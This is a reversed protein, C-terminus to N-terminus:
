RCHGRYGPESVGDLWWCKDDLVGRQIKPARAFPHGSAGLYVGVLALFVDSYLTPLGLGGIICVFLIGLFLDNRKRLSMQLLLMVLLLRSALSVLGGSHLAILYESDGIFEGLPSTYGVGLVLNARIVDYTLQTDAPVYDYAYRSRLTELPRAVVRGFYYRFPLGTASELVSSNAVVLALCIIICVPLSVARAGILRFRLSTVFLRLVYVLLSITAGLVFTKSFSLIGNVMSLVIIVQLRRTTGLNLRQGLSFLSSTFCLLSKLGLLLPSYNLGYARLFTGGQHVSEITSRAESTYWRTVLELGVSPWLVEVFVAILNAFMVVQFVPVLVRLLSNNDHQEESRLGNYVVIAVSLCLLLNKLIGMVVIWLVKSSTGAMVSLCTSLGEIAPVSCLMLFASLLKGSRPAKLTNIAMVIYLLLAAVGLYSFSIKQQGLDFVPAIFIGTLLVRVVEIHRGKSALYGMSAVLAIDVLNGM